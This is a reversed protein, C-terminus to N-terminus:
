TTSIRPSAPPTTRTTIARLRRSCPKWRPSRRTAKWMPAPTPSSARTTRRISSDIVSQDLFGQPIAAGVTSAYSIVGTVHDVEALDRSLAAEAAVDGRPVLVVVANQQGFEDQIMLTDAGARLNPDPESNQYTFVTHSQGLFAPVVLALVLVLAPVRVKSLVKGVNKFSPMLLRHRTKDILKYLSLTVAPLFVMVTFFSFVIGKVLNIGLDAGIQFQMFALAAFGFLTTVASAAITSLSRRMALAM